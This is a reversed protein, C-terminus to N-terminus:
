EFVGKVLDRLPQVAKITDKVGDGKVNIWHVYLKDDIYDISLTGPTLTVSNALFLKGMDSKIGTEVEVIGPRLPMRPHLVRYAVDINALIMEKGLVILFLLFRWSRSFPNGGGSEPMIRHLAIGLALAIIAGAIWEQYELSSSLMGWAVLLMAISILLTYTRKVM